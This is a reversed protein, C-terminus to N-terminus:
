ADLYRYFEEYASVVRRPTDLLGPRSPDDGAWAILTRVAAEAAERSPRNSKAPATAGAAPKTTLADM